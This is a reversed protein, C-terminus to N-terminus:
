KKCLIEKVSNDLIQNLQHKTLNENNNSFYVAYTIGNYVQFRDINPIWLGTNFYQNKNEWLEAREYEGNKKLFDILDAIRVHSCTGAGLILDKTFTRNKKYLEIAEPKGFVWTWNKILDRETDNIARVMAEELEKESMHFKSTCKWAFPDDLGINTEKLPNDHNNNEMAKVIAKYNYKEICELACILTDSLIKSPTNWQTYENETNKM